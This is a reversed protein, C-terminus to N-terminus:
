MSETNEIREQEENIEDVHEEIWNPDDLLIAEDVHDVAIAFGPMGTLSVSYNGPVKTLLMMLESVVDAAGDIVEIRQSTTDIPDPELIAKVLRLQQLSYKGTGHINLLWNRLTFEELYTEAAEKTLFLYQTDMGSEYDKELYEKGCEVYRSNWIDDLTVYIRGVKRVTVEAIHAEKGKQFPMNLRYAKQGSKFDKLTVNM